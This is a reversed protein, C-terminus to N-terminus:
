NSRPKLYTVLLRAISDGAYFDSLRFTQTEAMISASFFLSFMLFFYPKIM